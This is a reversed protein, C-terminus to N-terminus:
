KKTCKRLFFSPSAFFLVCFPLLLLPSLLAIFTKSSWQQFSFPLGKSLFVRDAWFKHQFGFVFFHTKSNQRLGVYRCFVYAIAACHSGYINTLCSFRWKLSCKQKSKKEFLFISNIEKYIIEYFTHRHRITVHLCSVDTYQGTHPDIVDWCWQNLYLQNKLSLLAICSNQFWRFVKRNNICDLVHLRIDSPILPLMTVRARMNRLCLCYWSDCCPSASWRGIVFITLNGSVLKVTVWSQTFLWRVVEIVHTVLFLVFKKVLRLQGLKQRLFDVAWRKNLFNTHIELFNTQFENFIFPPTLIQSCWLGISRFSALPVWMSLLRALINDPRASNYNFDTYCM